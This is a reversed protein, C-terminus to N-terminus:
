TGSSFRNIIGHQTTQLYAGGSQIEHTMTMEEGLAEKIGYM